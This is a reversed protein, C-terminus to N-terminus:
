VRLYADETLAFTDELIYRVDDRWLVGSLEGYFQRFDARYLIPFYGRERRRFRPKFVLDMGSDPGDARIAWPSTEGTGPETSYEFRLSDFKFMEDGVWAVYKKGAVPPVARDRDKSMQLSFPVAVSSDERTMQGVASLWNWNQVSRRHGVTRDYAGMAGESLPITEGERTAQGRELILNGWWQLTGKGGPYQTTQILPRDFAPRAVGEIRLGRANVDFSVGGEPTMQIFSGSKPDQFHQIGEDVKMANMFLIQKHSRDDCHGTEKDVVLVATHGALGLDALHCGVFHTPTDFTVHLWRSLRGAQKGAATMNIRHPPGDFWGAVYTGHSDIM